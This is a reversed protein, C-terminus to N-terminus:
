SDIGYNRMANSLQILVIRRIPEDLLRSHVVFEAHLDYIPLEQPEIPIMAAAGTGPARRHFSIGGPETWLMSWENETELGYLQESLPLRARFAPTLEPLTALRM